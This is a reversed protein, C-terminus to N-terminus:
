YFSNPIDTACPVLNLFLSPLVREWIALHSELEFKSRLSFALSLSRSTAYLHKELAGRPMLHQAAAVPFKASERQQSM